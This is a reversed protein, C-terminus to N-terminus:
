KFFIVTITVDVAGNNLLRITQLDWEGDTVVGDGTQRVILRGSPIFGLQNTISVEQGAPITVDASTFTEFNDKFSLKLLGSFLSSMWSYLDVQLFKVVGTSSPLRPPNKFIM